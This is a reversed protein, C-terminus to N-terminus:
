QRSRACYQSVSIPAYDGAGINRKIAFQAATQQQGMRIADDYMRVGSDSWIAQQELLYGDAGVVAAYRFDATMHVNARSGLYQPRDGYPMM